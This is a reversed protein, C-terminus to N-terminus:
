GQHSWSRSGCELAEAAAVEHAGTPAAASQAATAMPAPTAAAAGVSAHVVGTDQGTPPGLTGRRPRERWRQDHGRDSDHTSLVHQVFAGGALVHVHTLKDPSLLAHDPRRDPGGANGDKGSSRRRQCTLKPARCWRTKSAPATSPTTLARRKAEVRGVAPGEPMSSAQARCM